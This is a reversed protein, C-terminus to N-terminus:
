NIYLTGSSTKLPQPCEMHQALRGNVFVDLANNRGCLSVHIWRRLPLDEVICEMNHSEKKTLSDMYPYTQVRITM